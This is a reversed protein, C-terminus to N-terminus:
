KKVELWPVELLPKIYVRPYHEWLGWEGLCEGHDSTVIIKGELFKVLRKVENIVLKLNEKYENKVREPDIKEGRRIKAWTGKVVLDQVLDREKIIKQKRASEKNEIKKTRGFCVPPYHPQLYHIIM